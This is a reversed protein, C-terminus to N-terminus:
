RSFFRTPNLIPLVSQSNMLLLKTMKGLIPKWKSSKPWPGPLATIVWDPLSMQGTATRTSRVCGCAPTCNALPWNM